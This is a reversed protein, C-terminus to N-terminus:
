CFEFIDVEDGNNLSLYLDVVAEHALVSTEYAGRADNLKAIRM